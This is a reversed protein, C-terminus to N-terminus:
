TNAPPKRKRARRKEFEAAWENHWPQMGLNLQQTADCLQILSHSPFGSEAFTKM